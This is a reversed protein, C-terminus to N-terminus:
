QQEAQPNSGPDTVPKQFATTAGADESVAGPASTMTTPAVDSAQAGQGYASYGYASQAQDDVQQAPQGYGAAYGQDAQQQATAQPSATAGSTATANAPALKLQGSEVLLWVVAAVFVLIATILLLMAGAGRTGIEEFLPDISAFQFVAAFAATAGVSAIAAVYHKTTGVLLTSLALFGALVVLGYPLVFHTQFLSVGEGNDNKPNYGSLFGCFLTIVGLAGIVAAIIAPTNAPLGQSKPKTPPQQQAGLGYSAQPYQQQAYPQQGYQQQYQQQAQADYGQGYQAAQQQGGPYQADQYQGAPYQGAPYQGASYQGAPYQGAPYQGAPYQADQYQGTPYQGAPYQSGPYPSGQYQGFQQDQGPTQAGQPNQGYGYGGSQPYTM